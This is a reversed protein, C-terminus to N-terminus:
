SAGGHAAAVAEVIALGRALAPVRYRAIGDDNGPLTM